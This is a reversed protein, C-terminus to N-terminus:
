RAVGTCVFTSADQRTCNYSKPEWQECTCVKGDNPCCVQGCENTTCGALPPRKTACGLSCFSVVASLLIIAIVGYGCGHLYPTLDINEPNAAIRKAERNESTMRSM